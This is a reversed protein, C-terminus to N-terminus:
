MNRSNKGSRVLCVIRLERTRVLDTRSELVGRSAIGMIGATENLPNKAFHEGSDLDPNSEAQGGALSRLSDEANPQKE